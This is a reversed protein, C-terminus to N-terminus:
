PICAAQPAASRHVRLAHALTGCPCTFEDHKAYSDTIAHQHMTPHLQDQLDHQQMYQMHPHDHHGSLATSM